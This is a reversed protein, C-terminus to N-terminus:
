RGERRYTIFQNGNEGFWERAENMSVRYITGLQPNLIGIGTENFGVILVGTGDELITLVPIDKNVYYLVMDLSCGTLDMVVAGPLHEELIKVAKKGQDLDEQSNRSIGEYSLMADICVALAGRESTAAEERIAMIQNRPARNGRLWVCEGDGSVVVGASADALAVASGPSVFIGEVGKSGYVYYRAIKGDDALVLRRGGEYVVEKPTLIKVTKSDINKRTQIEVYREYKDINVAVIVNKGLDTETNNMIHDQELERYGGSETRAIRELTIQNDAIICDTVYIDSHKYEKLLEGAANRICIKYMPFFTRGSSEERVDSTYAVGYIIDEEMFGLPRIAEGAAVSVIKESDNGLNRIHLSTSHYIDEGDAWVAIKYNDSVLLKEDQDLTILRSYTKEGLDVGYMVHNLVLYLKQERNLYILRDMEAALVSYTKDYPIYVLEEITNQASHYTYIRIGVEGEHRGRNMYGYVVFEVDGGEHVDLIRISHQPNMTRPDANEADYFSFIVALKNSEVDYSFLRGAVEFVVVNGDESEVMPIETDTIGLLLKDNGCMKGADPIQTMTREFDLLYMRDTTYRLRYYEEVMYYATYEGEKTSVVYNSRLTATQEAIEMFRPVAKSVERVGLDGWTIQRFSSHINVKHFSSNDELKPDTELYKTLERAAEKDYLKEHFDVCFNLKEAAHFGTAWLVRTYYVARGGGEMELLIALSYERDREILDKLVINGWIRDNDIKIDKIQNNEILRSGDITRVEMSIGVVEQGFTDVVFGTDRAEGLVTVTDRQFSVDSDLTYGYLRNYEVGDMVMTVLPLTAPAMEMTLNDHGKNMIRSVIVLALLFTVFFVLMKLVSKKM